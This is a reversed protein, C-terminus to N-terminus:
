SRSTVPADPRSAAPRKDGSTPQGAGDAAAAALSLLEDLSEDFDDALADLDRFRDQDALLGVDVRGNYSLLAVSLTQNRALPIAPHCASMQRGLLYLPAQPGPVNTVVLNMFHHMMELRSAQAILTPPAFEGLRTLALAGVAQKSEKLGRMSQSVRALRARPDPEGVPLPCFIATVQNGLTGRAEASRVSVPVMIRLEAPLGGGRALLLRRLAGAVVALLVDNVTGGLAARIRKVAGLELSRMEWRRHPGIPQNIPSPPAQGMRALGLLPKVGAGVELLFKRGETAPELAQRALSLPRKVQDRLAEAILQSRSPAPRPSWPEPEPSPAPTADHDLLVSAIDMGSIGDIMCHHTKSLLAFKGEELGEILWIEWLPKDRDLRQSFLRGALKNLEDRGGPRPLAAHRLHFSLDFDADDVWVPRGLEFPVWVLRQRYRPVRALRAAILDFLREYPPPAGDFVAVSGVHMHATRDEFYLFTADLYSLRESWHM